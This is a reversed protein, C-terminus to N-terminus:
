TKGSAAAMVDAGLEMEVEFGDWLSAADTRNLCDKVRDRLIGRTKEAITQGLALAGSLLEDHSDYLRQVFGLAHGRAIPMPEGTLTLLRAEGIGLVDRVMRYGGFANVNVEPLGISADRSAVRIDCASALMLGSGLASGHLAAISVKRSERLVRTVEKVIGSGRRAGTKDLTRFEKFDNGACFHRGPLGTIVLCGADGQDLRQILDVFDAWGAFGIANVPENCIRVLCVDAHTEVEFVIDIRKM